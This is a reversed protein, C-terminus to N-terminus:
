PRASGRPPPLTPSRDRSAAACAGSRPRVIRNLERVTAAATADSAIKGCRKRYEIPIAPATTAITAAISASTTSGASSVTSPGRTLASAGFRNCRAASRSARGACLPAQYRSERNTIRRGPRIATSLAANRIASPIGNVPMLNTLTVALTRGCLALARWTSSVSARPKGGFRVEGTSTTTPAGAPEGCSLARAACILRSDSTDATAGACGAPGFLESSATAETCRGRLPAVLCSTRSMRAM